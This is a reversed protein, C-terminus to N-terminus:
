RKWRPLGKESQAELEVGKRWRWLGFLILSSGIFLLVSPEPGPFLIDGGGGSVPRGMENAQVQDPALWRAADGRTAGFAGGDPLAAAFTSVLYICIRTM